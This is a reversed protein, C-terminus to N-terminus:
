ISKSLINHINSALYTIFRHGCSQMILKWASISKNTKINYHACGNEFYIPKPCITKHKVMAFIRPFLFPPNVLIVVIVLRSEELVYFKTCIRFEKPKLSWCNICIICDKCIQIFNKWSNSKWQNWNRFSNQILYYLSLSLFLPLFQVIM